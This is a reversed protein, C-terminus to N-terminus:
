GYIQKLAIESLTIRGSHRNAIDEITQNIGNKFGIGIVISPNGVIDCVTHRIGSPKFGEFLVRNCAQKYAELQKDFQKVYLDANESAYTHPFEPAELVNGELDCPVFFGLQLPQKQFESYRRLKQIQEVACGTQVNETVFDTMSILQNKM